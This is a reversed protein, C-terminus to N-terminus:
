WRSRLLRCCRSKGRGYHVLAIQRILSPWPCLVRLSVSAAASVRPIQAFGMMAYVSSRHPASRPVGGTLAIRRRVRGVLQNLVAASILQPDVSWTGTQKPAKRACACELYAHRPELVWPVGLPLVSSMRSVTRGVRQNRQCHRCILLRTKQCLTLDVSEQRTRGIDRKAFARGVRAPPQVVFLSVGLIPVPATRTARGIEWPTRLAADLSAARGLLAAANVLFVSLLGWPQQVIRCCVDRM